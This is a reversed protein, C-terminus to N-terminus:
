SKETATYKELLLAPRYSLKAKRLGEDGMDEERNIFRASQCYHAAFERGIIPYAGQVEHFAKEIRINFTAEGLMEGMSYALIKGGARIAGGSLGFDFFHEFAVDVACAENKLSEERECGYLRCWEKNMEYCEGINARTIPEFSFDPHNAEFRHIHNRKQHLKKGALTILSQADYLYEAAARNEQAMFEGPYCAELLACDAKTLSYFSLPEGKQRSEKLLAALAQKVDGGAPFLYAATKEKKSRVCFCGYLETWSLAYIEQWMLLCSFSYECGPRDALSLLASVRDKDAMAAAKFDLM